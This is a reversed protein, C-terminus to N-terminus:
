LGRKRADESLSRAVTGPALRQSIEDMRADQRRAHRDVADQLGEIMAELADVRAVLDSPPAAPSSAARVSFRATARDIRDSAM